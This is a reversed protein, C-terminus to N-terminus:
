IAVESSVDCNVNWIGSVSKNSGSPHEYKNKEQGEDKQWLNQLEPDQIADTITFDGWYITVGLRYIQM